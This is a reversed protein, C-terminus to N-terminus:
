PIEQQAKSNQTRFTVTSRYLLVIFLRIKRSKIGPHSYNPTYSAHVPEHVATISRAPTRAADRVHEMESRRESLLLSFM